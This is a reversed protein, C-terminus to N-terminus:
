AGTKDWKMIYFKTISFQAQIGMVFKNTEIGVRGFINKFQYGFKLPM